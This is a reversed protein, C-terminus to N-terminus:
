HKALYEEILDALIEDLDSEIESTNKNFMELFKTAQATTLNRDRLKYQIEPLTKDYRPIILWQVFSPLVLKMEKFAFRCFGEIYEKGDLDWVKCGKAKSFYSPWQEPLFMEPRKSLLMTGGPILTKAKKYLEQGQGM